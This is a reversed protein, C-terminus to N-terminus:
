SWSTSAAMDIKERGSEPSASRPIIELPIIQCIAPPLHLHCYATSSAPTPLLDLNYPVTTLKTLCPTNIMNLDIHTHRIYPSLSPHPSHCRGHHCM